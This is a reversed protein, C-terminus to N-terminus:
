CYHLPASYRVSHEAARLFMAVYFAMDLDRRWPEPGRKQEDQEDFWMGIELNDGAPVEGPLAIRRSLALAQRLLTQSSAVLLGDHYVGPGDGAIVGDFELPVFVDVQDGIFAGALKDFGGRDRYLKEEFTFPQVGPAGLTLGKSRVAAVVRAAISDPDERGEQQWGETTPSVLYVAM